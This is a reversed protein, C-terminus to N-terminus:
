DSNSAKRESNATLFRIQPGSLTFSALLRLAHGRRMGLQKMAKGKAEGKGNAETHTHTHHM